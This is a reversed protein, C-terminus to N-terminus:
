PRTDHPGREEYLADRNFDGLGLSWGGSQHLARLEALVTEQEATLLRRETRPAEEPVLRAVPRGDRTVVVEAGSEVERLLRPLAEPVEAATVTM